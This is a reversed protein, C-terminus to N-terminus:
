QYKSWYDCSKNYIIKVIEAKIAPILAAGGSTFASVVSGAIVTNLTSNVATRSEGGCVVTYANRQAIDLEISLDFCVNQNDDVITFQNGDQLVYVGTTINYRQSASAINISFLIALM